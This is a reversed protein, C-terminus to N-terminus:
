ILQLIGASHVSGREPFRLSRVFKMRNSKNDILSSIKQTSFYYFFGILGMLIQIDFCKKALMRRNRFTHVSRSGTNAAMIKAFQEGFVAWTAKGTSTDSTKELDPVSSAGTLHHVAKPSELSFVITSVARCDFKL